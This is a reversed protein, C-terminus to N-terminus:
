PCNEIGNLDVGLPFSGVAFWPFDFDRRKEEPVARCIETYNESDIILRTAKLDHRIPSNWYNNTYNKALPPYWAFAEKLASMEEGILNHLRFYSFGLKTINM